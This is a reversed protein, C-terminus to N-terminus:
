EEDELQLSMAAKKAQANSKEINKKMEDIEKMFEKKAQEKSVGRDRNTVKKAYIEAIATILKDSSFGVYTAITDLDQISVLNFKGEATKQAATINYKPNDRVSSVINYIYKIESDTFDSSKLNSGSDKFLIDLTKRGTKIQKKVVSKSVKTNMMRKLVEYQKKLGAETKVYGNLYKKESSKMKFTKLTDIKKAKEYKNAALPQLKDIAKMYELSSNQRRLELAGRQSAYFKASKKKSKKM